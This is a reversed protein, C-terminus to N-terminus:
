RLIQKLTSAQGNRNDVLLAAANHSVNSLLDRNASLVCYEEPLM